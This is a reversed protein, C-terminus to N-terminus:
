LLAIVTQLANRFYDAWPEAFDLTATVAGPIRKALGNRDYPRGAMVRDIEDALITTFWKGKFIRHHQGKRFYREVKKASVALRLRFGVVPVQARRAIDSTLAAHRAPDTPESARTQVQSVVRYNAECRIGEKLLHLCLTIWDQWLEAAHRCWAASDTLSPSLWEPAVSAAAAAGIRLDGHMFIYNQVDYHETYVVHHSRRKTHQLDDVDKDVFFISATKQDGLSCVLAKQKRLFDHFSLLPKKGGTDGPLQEAQCIEYRAGLGVTTECIRAYFYPDSQKGEVFVFLQTSSIQMARLHGKYSHTLRNM